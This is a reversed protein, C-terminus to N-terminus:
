LLLLASFAFAFKLLKVLRHCASRCSSPKWGTGQPSGSGALAWGARVQKYLWM